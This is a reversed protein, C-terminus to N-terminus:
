YIIKTYELAIWGAGSKLRGWTYGDAEKTEVITYSGVPIYGTRVYGLGAGTKMALDTIEVRVMFDKSLAGYVPVGSPNYVTYGAPCSEKANALSEYAGIQSEPQNWNRRVRYWKGGDATKDKFTDVPVENGDFVTAFYKYDRSDVHTFTDYELIGNVGISEAYQAVEHPTKGSVAIDFARGKTHYSGKAGGVAANHSETRYGSNINIEAGAWNRMKQLYERVFDVDVLVKDSGDKCAFEKVQFNKSIYLDGGKAKSYEVVNM